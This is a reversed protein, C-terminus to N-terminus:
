RTLTAQRYTFGKEEYLEYIVELFSPLAPHIFSRLVSLYIPSTVNEHILPLYTIQDQRVTKLGDPVLTIGMGAAVLGLAIQIDSVKTTSFPAISHMAFFALLPETESHTHNKITKPLHTQHYLILSSDALEQLSLASRNALLHSHPLAVVYREHRLLVQLIAEDQTAFRGMGVDIQGKKLADIQQYTSIDQLHTEITPKDQEFRAIIEPLMGYLLSPVFGITLTNSPHAVRKTLLVSTDLEDLIGIIRHLFFEGAETLSLPRHYRDILEVGLETELQGVLRSISPQSLEVMQAATSFSGTTAVARFAKLQKIDM